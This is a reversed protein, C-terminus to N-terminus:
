DLKLLKCEYLIYEYRNDLKSLEMEMKIKM